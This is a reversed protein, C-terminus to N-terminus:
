APSSTGQSPDIRAGYERYFLGLSLLWKPNRMEDNRYLYLTSFLTFAPLGAVYVLIAVVSIGLM